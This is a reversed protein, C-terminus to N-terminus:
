LVMSNSRKGQKLLHGFQVPFNELIVHNERNPQIQLLFGTKRAYEIIRGVIEAFNKRDKIITLKLQVFIKSIDANNEETHYISATTQGGNVIQFDKVFYLKGKNDPLDIIEVEEATAAIGNNFALFM